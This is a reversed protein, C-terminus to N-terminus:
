ATRGAAGEAAGRVRGRPHARAPVQLDGEDARENPVPQVFGKRILTLLTPRLPRGRGQRPKAHHHCRPYFTRGAIAARQILARAAPPLRELRERDIGRHFAARGNQGMRLLLSGVAM